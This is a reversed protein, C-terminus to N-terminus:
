AAERQNWCGANGTEAGSTAPQLVSRRRDRARDHGTAARWEGVTTAEKDVAQMSAVRGFCQDVQRHRFELIRLMRGHSGDCSTTGTALSPTARPDLLVDMATAFLFFISLSTGVPYRVLTPSLSPPTSLYPFSATRPGVTRAARALSRSSHQGTAGSRIMKRIM